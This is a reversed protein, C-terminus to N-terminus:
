MSKEPFRYGGREGSNKGKGYDQYSKAALSDTGKIPTERSFLPTRARM